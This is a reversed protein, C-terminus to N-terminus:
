QDAVCVVVSGSMFGSLSFLRPVRMIQRQMRVFLHDSCVMRRVPMM